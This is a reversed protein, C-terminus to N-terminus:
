VQAGFQEYRQHEGVVTDHGSRFEQQSDPNSFYSGVVMAGRSVKKQAKLFRQWVVWDIITPIPSGDGFWKPYGGLEKLAATRFVPAPGWTGRHGDGNGLRLGDESEPPWSQCPRLEDLAFCSRNIDGEKSFRIEWDGFFADAELQKMAGVHLELANRFYFDDLNLAAFYPTNTLALGINFAEAVRIEDSVSVMTINPSPADLKIGGDFVYIIKIPITQKLLSHLHQRFYLNLNEQKHWASCVVTIEESM